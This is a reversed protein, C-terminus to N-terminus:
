PIPTLSTKSKLHKPLDKSPHALYKDTIFAITAKLMQHSTCKDLARCCGEIAKIDPDKIKM